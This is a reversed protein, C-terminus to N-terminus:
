FSGSRDSGSDVAADESLYRFMLGKEDWVLANGQQPAIEYSDPWYPTPREPVTEYVEQGMM